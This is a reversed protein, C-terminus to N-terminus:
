ATTLATPGPPDDGLKGEAVNTFYAAINEPQPMETGNKTFCMHGAGSLEHLRALMGAHCNYPGRNAGPATM